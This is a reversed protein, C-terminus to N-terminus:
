LVTFYSAVLVCWFFMGAEPKTWEALGEKGLFEQLAAEFVDRKLRYFESVAHTHAIFGAHGWERLLAHTISQILSSPQLNASATQFLM